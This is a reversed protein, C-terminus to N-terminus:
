WQAGPYARQLFQMEALLYGVPMTALAVTPLTTYLAGFLVKLNNPDSHHDYHIRKWVGATMPSRWMLRSHLVFRHLVYWVVPYIFVTTICAAVVAFWDANGRLINTVVLAASLLAIGAYAAIAYYQFYAITLERLNMRDLSRFLM